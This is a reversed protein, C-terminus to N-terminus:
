IPVFILRTCLNCNLYIHAINKIFNLKTNLSCKHLSKRLWYNHTAKLLIEDYESIMRTAICLVLVINKIQRKQVNRANRCVNAYPKKVILSFWWLAIKLLNETVIEEIGRAGWDCEFGRSQNRCIYMDSCSIWQISHKLFHPSTRSENQDFGARINACNSIFPVCLFKNDMSEHIGVGANM